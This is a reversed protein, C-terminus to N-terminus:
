MRKMRMSSLPPASSPLRTSLASVTLSIPSFWMPSRLTLCSSSRAGRPERVIEIRPGILVLFPAQAEHDVRLARRLAAARSAEGPRAKGVGIEPEIGRAVDAAHDHHLQQREDVRLRHLQVRASSRPTYWLRSPVFAAAHASLACERSLAARPRKRIVSRTVERQFLEDAQPVPQLVDAGAPREERDRRAEFDMRSRDLVGGVEERARGDVRLGASLDPQPEFEGVETTWFGAQQIGHKEFLKLTITDFRKILDPLRGPMARYSRMEYIM